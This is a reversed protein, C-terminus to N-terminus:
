VQQRWSTGGLQAVWRSYESTPFRSRLDPATGDGALGWNYATWPKGDNLGTLWRWAEADIGSPEKVVLSAVNSKISADSGDTAASLFTIQLSYTGPVTLRPDAFFVNGYLSPDIDIYLQRTELAPVTLCFSDECKEAQDEPLGRAARKDVGEIEFTADQTTATLFMADYIQLPQNSPNKLTVLFAAPLGPLVESPAISLTASLTVTDAFTVRDSASLMLTLVFIALKLKQMTLRWNMTLTRTGYRNPDSSM